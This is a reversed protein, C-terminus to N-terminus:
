EVVDDIEKGLKLSKEIYGCLEDYSMAEYLIDEYTDPSCGFKDRYELFLKKIHDDWKGEWM